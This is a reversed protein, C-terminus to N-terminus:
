GLVPRAQKKGKQAFYAVELFSNDSMALFGFVGGGSVM